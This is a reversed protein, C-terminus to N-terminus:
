MSLFVIFISIIGVSLKMTVDSHGQLLGSALKLLHPMNSNIANWKKHQQQWKESYCNRRLLYAKEMMLHFMGNIWNESGSVKVVFLRPEIGTMEGIEVERRSCNWNPSSFFASSLKQCCEFSKKPSHLFSLRSHIILLLPFTFLTSLFTSTANSFADLYFNHNRTLPIQKM